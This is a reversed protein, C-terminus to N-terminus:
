ARDLPTRTEEPPPADKTDGPALGQLGVEEADEYKTDEATSPKDDRTAM